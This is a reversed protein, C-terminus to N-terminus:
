LNRPWEEKGLCEKKLNEIIGALTESLAEADIQHNSTYTKQMDPFTAGINILPFDRNHVAECRAFEYLIQNNSFLEIYREFNDNDFDSINSQELIQLLKDRKQFRLDYNDHIEQETGIEQEIVSVIEEYKELKGYIPDDSVKSHPYQFLFLLDINEYLDYKGSYEKVISKFSQRDKCKPYRERGLAAIHCLAVTIGELHFKDSEM